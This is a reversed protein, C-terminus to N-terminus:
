SVIVTINQFNRLNKPLSTECTWLFLFCISFSINDTHFYVIIFYVTKMKQTQASQHLLGFVASRFSHLLLKIGKLWDVNQLSNLEVRKTGKATSPVGIFPVLFTTRYPESNKYWECSRVISVSMIAYRVTSYRVTSSLPFSGISKNYILTTWDQEQLGVRRKMRFPEDRYARTGEFPKGEPTIAKFPQLTYPVLCSNRSTGMQTM